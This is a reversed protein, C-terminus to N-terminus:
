PKICVSNCFMFRCQNYMFILYRNPNSAFLICCLLCNPNSELAIVVRLDNVQNSFGVGAGLLIRGVILMGLNEAAANLIAGLLFSLGGIIISVRRGKSRTIYSAGFTAVLGSLYLSSTFLTLLQNDYKCYDTEHLHHQKREYVHRFFKKLFDDM